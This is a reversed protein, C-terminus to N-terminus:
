FMRGSFSLETRDPSAAINVFRFYWTSIKAKMLRLLVVRMAENKNESLQKLAALIESRESNGWEVVVKSQM